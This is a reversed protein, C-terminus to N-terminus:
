GFIKKLILKILEGKNYIHGTKKNSKDIRNVDAIRKLMHIKTKNLLNEYAEKNKKQQKKTLPNGGVHEVVEPVPEPVPEPVIDAPVPVNEKPSVKTCNCYLSEEEGGGRKNRNNGRGGGNYKMGLLSDYNTKVM